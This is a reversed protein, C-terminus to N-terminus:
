TVCASERLDMHAIHTKSAQPIGKVGGARAVPEAEWGIQIAEHTDESHIMMMRLHVTTVGWARVM